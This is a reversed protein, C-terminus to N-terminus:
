EQNDCLSQNCTENDESESSVNHQQEQQKLQSNSEDNLAKVQKAQNNSKLLVDMTKLNSPKEENYDFNIMTDNM